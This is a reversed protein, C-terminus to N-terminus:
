FTFGRMAMGEYDPVQTWPGLEDREESEGDTDKLPWPSRGREESEGGEGDEVEFGVVLGLVDAVFRVPVGEGRGLGVVERVIERDGSVIEAVM